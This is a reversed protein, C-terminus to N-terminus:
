GYGLGLEQSSSAVQDAAIRINGTFNQLTQLMVNLDMSMRGMEDLSILPVAEHSLTGNAIANLADSINQVMKRFSKGFLIAAFVVMITLHLSIAMLHIEVHQITILHNQMLYTFTMFFYLPMIAVSTLTMLIKTFIGCGKCRNEPVIVQRMRSDELYTSLLHETQLYFFSTLIPGILLVGSYALVLRQVNLAGMLYVTLVFLSIGLPVRVLMLLSELRPHRLLRLKAQLLMTSDPTSETNLTQFAPRLHKVRVLVGLILTLGSGNLAGIVLPLLDRNFNGGILLVYIYSAVPLSYIFGELVLSLKTIQFRYTKMSNGEHVGFMEKARYFKDAQQLRSREDYM